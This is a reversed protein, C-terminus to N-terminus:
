PPVSAVGPAWLHGRPHCHGMGATVTDWGQPDCHGMGVTVTDRGGAGHTDRDRGLHEGAVATMNHTYGPKLCHAATVVWKENIISGGCFGM